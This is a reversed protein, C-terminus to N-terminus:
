KRGMTLVLVLVLGGILLTNTDINLGASGIPTQVNAGVGGGSGMPVGPQRNQMAAQQARIAALDVDRNVDFMDGSGYVATTSGSRNTTTEYVPKKIVEKTINFGGEVATGLISNWDIAALGMDTDVGLGRGRGLGRPIPILPELPDLGREFAGMGRAGRVGLLGNGEYVLARMPGPQRPLMVPKGDADVGMPQTLADVVRVYDPIVPQWTSLDTINMEAFPM